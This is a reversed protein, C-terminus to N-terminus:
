NIASEIAGVMSYLNFKKRDMSYQVPNFVREETPTANQINIHNSFTMRNVREQLREIESSLQCTVATKSFIM